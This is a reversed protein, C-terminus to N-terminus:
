GRKNRFRFLPLGLLGAGFLWVSPPVPVPQITLNVGIFYPNSAGPTTVAEFILRDGPTVNLTFPGFTSPTNRDYVDGYSVTGYPLGAGSGKFSLSWDVSRGPYQEAYWVNGSVTVVGTLNSTWSVNGEQYPNLTSGGSSPHFIIDGQMFDGGWFNDASAQLWVPVHGVFPYQTQAWAYQGTIIAHSSDYDTQLPLPTIGKNYSWVGNPNNAYSWDGKLDFPVAGVTGALSVALIVTFFLISIKGSLLKM